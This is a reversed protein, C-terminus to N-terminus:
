VARLCRRIATLSRDVDDATTQWNSVSLRMGARGRWITGTPFCTGDDQLAAVLAATAADGATARVLVQNLGQALVEAGETERLGAAFREACRCLREVLEAVGDRGLSRLAAWVAVGRARRSFEPNFDLPERPGSGDGQVLYDATVGMAARHAAPDAVFAMGSDYPVNLWKHADTAWSDAREVGALAAARAPAAAAWLGFAGDVHAWAGHDHALDVIEGLPDVAGTNVNGAQACVIAPGGDGRDLAAALAGPLMAGRADVDVPEVCGAGLGLFRLARDVTVHREAGALVRIPPAGTLGDHEVDWGARALVRHRAAALATVHAMQCGTVFAFSADRPLGLVEKLWGGAVEEIASTAPTPAALGTNQDWAVAMWDAALAAPLSGGAVFGFFRPGTIGILGPEAREVLRDLVARPDEGRGPLPGGFARLLAESGADPRVPREADAELHRAAHEAAAHLLAHLSATAVASM